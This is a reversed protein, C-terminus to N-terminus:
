YSCYLLAPYCALWAFFFRNLGFFYFNALHFLLAFIIFGVCLLPNLLAAVFCLEFLIITWSIMISIIQNDSILRSLSNDNYITSCMFSRLAAGNRWNRGKIKVIGSIFYSSYIQITIYWMAALSVKESISSFLSDFTLASLVIITMYDSGGNFTGRWRLSILLTSILLYLFLFANSYFILCIAAILRLALLVLFNEYKLTFALFKQTLKSFIEFEVKLDEWRWVGQESFSKRIQILEITQLIIAFSIIQKTCYLTTSIEM